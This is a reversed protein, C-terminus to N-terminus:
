GVCVKLFIIGEKVVYERYKCQLVDRSSVVEKLIVFLEFLSM